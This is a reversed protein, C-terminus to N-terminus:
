DAEGFFISIGEDDRGVTPGQGESEGECTERDEKAAGRMDYSEMVRGAPSKVLLREPASELGAYVLVGGAHFRAPIVVRRLPQLKGDVEILATDRPDRLLGYAIAYEYPHCGSSVELNLLGRPLHEFELPPPNGEFFSSGYKGEAAGGGIETGESLTLEFHALGYLRFREAVIAFEPGRAAHERVLTVVGDSVYKFPHRTCGVFRELKVARLKQGHAGLEVLEVPIPKPGRVAQYYYGDMRGFRRPVQAPRSVIARGNSLRLRVFRTAPLTREQVTLRGEECSVSAESSSGSKSACETSSDHSVEIEVSLKCEFLADIHGAPVLRIVYKTDAETRGEGIKTAGSRPSPQSFILEREQKEHSVLGLVTDLRGDVELRASERIDAVRKLTQKAKLVLTKEVPGETRILEKFATLALSGNRLLSALQSEREEVLAKSAPSLTKHGSAVWSKMDACAAPAPKAFRTEIEDADAHILGTLAADSWSLSRIQAAYALEAPRDAIVAARDLVSSAELQLDSLQQGERKEEGRRRATMKIEDQPRAPFPEQFAGTLVGACESGLPGAAAAYMSDFAPTSALFAQDRQYGALLYAHTAARDGPSVAAGASPPALM